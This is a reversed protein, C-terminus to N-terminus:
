WYAYPIRVPNLIYGESNENIFVLRTGGPDPFVNRIGTTHQQTMVYQWDEIM